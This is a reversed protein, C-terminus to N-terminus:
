EAPELTAPLDKVCLRGDEDLLHRALFAPAFGRQLARHLGPSRLELFEDAPARRRPEEPTVIAPRAHKSVVGLIARRNRIRGIRLGACPMQRLGGWLGVRFMIASRRSASIGATM